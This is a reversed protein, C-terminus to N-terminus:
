SRAGAAENTLAERVWNSGRDRRLVEARARVLMIWGFYFTYALAMTLLPWLMSWSITPGDARMVSPAQHLSNWWDVSYRVIPVNVIGVIALVASARDARDTDDIAARLGTYGAFFFLLFLQSVIRPDWAWWAGWTPKGWIMGTALSVITFGAGVGACAVAVAHAIKIRWILGIAASIAMTSYTLLALWSAPVHVYIIRYADSQFYDVPALVLGGYLGILLLVLSPWGFWPAIKGAVWYFYPPSGFRHFWAWSM